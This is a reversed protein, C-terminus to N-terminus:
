GTSTPPEASEPSGITEMLVPMEPAGAADAEPECFCFRNGGRQKASYMARDASSLLSEFELGDAPYVAVGVSVTPELSRGAIEIPRRIADLLKIATRVAADRGTHELLIVFEDGGIRAVTDAKRFLRRLRDALIVLIEDGVSHGLSDNVDKLGDYDIFVVACEGGHRGLHALLMNARDWLLARNPLGTLIDHYAMHRVTEEARKRETVDRGVIVTLDQSDEQILHAHLELPVSEGSAKVIDSEFIVAGERRLDSVRQEFQRLTEASCLTRVDTDLLERRPIGTLSCVADNAYVIRGGSGTVVVCDTTKDLLLSRFALEEQTRRRDTTDVGACRVGVIRGREDHIVRRHWVIDHDDGSSNVVAYEVYDDGEQPAGMLREFGERVRDRLHEPVFRDFWNEGCADDARVGLLECAQQNVQKIRGERDTIVIIAQAINLYQTSRLREARLESHTRRYSIFLSRVGIIGVFLLVSVVLSSFADRATAPSTSDLALYLRRYAQVALGVSIIIWFWRRGSLPILCLASVAAAVQMGAAAYLIVEFVNQTTMARPRPPKGGDKASVSSDRASSEKGKTLPYVGQSGRDRM